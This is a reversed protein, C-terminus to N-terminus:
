REDPEHLSWFGALSGRLPKGYSEPHSSLREQMAKGIRRRIDANIKATDEGWAPIATRLQAPRPAGPTPRLSGQGQPLPRLNLFHQRWRVVSGNGHSFGALATPPIRWRSSRRRRDWRALSAVRDSPPHSQQVRRVPEAFTDVPPAPTRRAPATARDCTPLRERPPTDAEPRSCPFHRM